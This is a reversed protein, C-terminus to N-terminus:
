RMMGIIMLLLWIGVVLGNCIVGIWVTGPTKLRRDFAGVGLALGVIAPFLGLCVGIMGIAEADEKDGHMQQAIVIMAGLGLISFIGLGASWWILKTRKASTKPNPNAACSPCLNVGGPFTFLCTSCVPARCVQCRTVAASEPHRTCKETPTVDAGFAATLRGAVAANSNPDLPPPIGPPGGPSLRAAMAVTPYRSFLIQYRGNHAPCVATQGDRSDLPTMCEPCFM